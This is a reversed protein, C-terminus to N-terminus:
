AWVNKEMDNILMQCIIYKSTQENGKGSYCLSWSSVIQDQHISLKSGVVNIAFLLGKIVLCQTLSYEVLLQSGPPFLELILSIDGQCSLVVLVVAWSFAHGVRPSVAHRAEGSCCDGQSSSARGPSVTEAVSVLLHYLHHIM